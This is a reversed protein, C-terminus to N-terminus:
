HLISYLPRMPLLGCRCLNALWQQRHAKLLFPHLLNASALRRNFKQRLKEQVLSCAEEWSLKHHAYDRLPDLAAEASQFAMAMGNGTFPPIMAAHDGLAIGDTPTLKRDFGVAAVACFSTDDLQAEALRDALKILGAQRLYTDILDTGRAETNQRRFLGCVNVEQNEIQSLGVYCETGLHLELEKTTPLNRAHIKLGIWPSRTRRRGTAMVQGPTDPNQTIRTKLHLIGGNAVFAEALAADLGHRSLGYAPAPLTQQQILQERVFWAVERQPLAESLFPALGLKQITDTSLGAIFEGCVRHRPYSGAEFLTVPVREKRLALGLSLGALGGGIIEIPRLTSM